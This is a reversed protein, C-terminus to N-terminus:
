AKLRGRKKLEGAKQSDPASVEQGPQGAQVNGVIAQGGSQVNVNGVSVNRPGNGRVRELTEALQTVVTAGKLAHRLNVDRFQVHNPTAQTAQSLCENTANSIGVLLSALIAELATKPQLGLYLEASGSKSLELMGKDVHQYPATLLCHAASLEYFEASQPSAPLSQDNTKSTVARGDQPVKKKKVM